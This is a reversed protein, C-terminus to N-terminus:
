GPTPEKPRHELLWLAALTWLDVRHEDALRLLTENIKQYKEGTTAGSEFGPWDGLDKLAAESTESWIGYHDPYAVLLIPTLTDVSVIPLMDRVTDIRAPLPTSHDVLLAIATRLHDMDDAAEHDRREVDSWHSTNRITLFELYDDRTLRAPNRFLPSFRSIVDDRLSM